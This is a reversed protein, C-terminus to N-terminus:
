LMLLVLVLLLWVSIPRLICSGVAWYSPATVPLFERGHQDRSDFTRISALRVAPDVGVREM